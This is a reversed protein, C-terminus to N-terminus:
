ARDTARVPSTRRPSRSAVPSEARTRGSLGRAESLKAIVFTNLSVGEAEAEGALWAHLSEPLRVRFQGSHTRLTHPEPMPRDEEEYTSLALRIAESLESTAEPPTVGHASLGGLEPCSAVFVEDEPSWAVRMSYKAMIVEKM